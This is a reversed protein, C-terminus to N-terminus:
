GPDEGAGEGARRGVRRELARLRRLAEPLRGLAVVARHWAREEMQPAGWVRAGPAVDKHIGARAGCFAGEGITLHGAVGVQAMLVARPGLRTSGALGSQAVVIAGEGVDCNHAIQVLNDIKAGRRIRTDGYTGRDVTTNAGIEVDDEIVVRGVHPIKLYGGSEDAEYGFGDGGVVVGPQLIVRDGLRTGERLVCGGHIECDAGVVVDDGLVAGAHVVSRAGVRAGPGVVARAGVSAAPDVAAGPDVFAAPHVGAAPRTRPLLVAVARAFDLRPAPSRIAPRGPEIGDPLIVAGARSAALQRAWRSSTVFSLDGPSATELPAAGKVQFEGDGEVPRGLREALAALHM